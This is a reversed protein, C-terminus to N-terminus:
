IKLDGDNLLDLNDLKQKVNNAVTEEITGSIYLFRQISKSKSNERWIRGQVQKMKVASDDPSIISIRPFEGTEDGISLGVGGASSNIIIVREKNSQFDKKNQERIKDKLRGDFVCKTNIRQSLADISASFNLFVVVSMGSEISEEVMNQILPIKILETKERARLRITLENESDNKIKKDVKKLERHMEDYIENIRKTDEDDLNYPDIQIECEPFSPISDRRLRVGRKEFLNKHIRKLASKDNNFTM